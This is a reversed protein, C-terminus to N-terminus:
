HSGKSNRNPHERRAAQDAKFQQWDIGAADLDERIRHVLRWPIQAYAANCRLPAAAAVELADAALRKHHERKTM